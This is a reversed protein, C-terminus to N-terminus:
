STLYTYYKPITIVPPVRGRDPIVSKLDYNETMM